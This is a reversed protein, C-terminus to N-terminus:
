LDFTEKNLLMFNCHFPHTITVLSLYLNLTMEYRKRVLIILAEGKEKVKFLLNNM